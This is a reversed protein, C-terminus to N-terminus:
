DMGCGDHVARPVGGRHIWTEQVAQSSMLRLKSTKSTCPTFIKTVICVEPESQDGIM